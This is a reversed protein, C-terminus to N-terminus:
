GHIAEGAEFAGRLNDQVAAKRNVKYDFFVMVSSCAAMVTEADGDRLLIQDLVYSSRGLGGLGTGVRVTGPYHLQHLYDIKCSALISRNSIAFKEMMARILAVRGAEFFQGYKTNNVHGMADQDSFRLTVDTWFTFDSPPKLVM